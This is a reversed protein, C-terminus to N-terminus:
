PPLESTPEADTRRDAGPLGQSLIADRIAEARALEVIRQEQDRFRFYTGLSTLAFVVTLVYLILDTGRTVGLVNAAHQTLRPQLVSLVAATTLILALIRAGARLGVHSRNRFAWIALGVFSVILVIKILTM